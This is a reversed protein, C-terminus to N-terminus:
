SRQESRARSAAGSEAISAAGSTADSDAISTVSSGAGSSAARLREVTEPPVDVSGLMRDPRRAGHFDSGGTPVLGNHDALARLWRVTGASYSPYHCELGGLGAEVLTPLLHRLRKPDRRPAGPPVPHAIVPVGGAARIVACAEAPSLRTRPVYAPARVGILEAFAIGFDTVVGSDFLAQAIHPRGIPATGAIAAVDEFAIEIGRGRLRDVMARAREERGARIRLFLAQLSPTEAEVFYGLIDTIGESPTECGIEVAPVIEIGHDFAEAQAGPIGAMNDHDTLALTGIGAAAAAAVLERPSLEGDSATSHTHLDIRGPRSRNTGGPM